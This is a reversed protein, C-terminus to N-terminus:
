WCTVRYQHTCMWNWPALGKSHSNLRWTWGEDRNTRRVLFSLKQFLPLNSMRQLTFRVKKEDWKRQQVRVCVRHYVSVCACAPVQRRSQEKPAWRKRKKKRCRVCFLLQLITQKASPPLVTITDFGGPHCKCLCLIKVRKFFLSSFFVCCIFLLWSLFRLQVICLTEMHLKREKLTQNLRFMEEPTSWRSFLNYNRQYASPGPVPERSVPFVVGM